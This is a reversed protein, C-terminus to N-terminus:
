NWDSCSSGSSYLREEFSIQEQTSRTCFSEKVRMRNWCVSPSRDGFGQDGFGLNDGEFFGMSHFICIRNMSFENM